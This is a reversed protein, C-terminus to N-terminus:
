VCERWQAYKSKLLAALRTVSGGKFSGVELYFTLDGHNPKIFKTWLYEFFEPQWNTHPYSWDPKTEPSVGYFPDVGKFLTSILKENVIAETRQETITVFEETKADVRLTHSINETADGCQQRLSIWVFSSVVLLVILTRNKIALSM